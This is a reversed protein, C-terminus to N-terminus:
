MKEGEKGRMRGGGIGKRRGGERGEERGKEEREGKKLMLCQSGLTLTEIIFFSISLLSLFLYLM